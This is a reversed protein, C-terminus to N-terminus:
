APEVLCIEMAFKSSKTPALSLSGPKDKLEGSFGAHAAYGQWPEICLFGAGPKTWIGLHPMEAFKVQISPKGPVGFTVARSKLQDFILAGPVFMEDELHMKIGKFFEETSNLDLLGDITRRPPAAETREFRLIHEERRGGYPLPWRFAPHFGFSVPMPWPSRNIVTAAVRLVSNEIAFGVELVFDFPFQVRTAADAELRFCCESNAFHVLTFDKTRAFGHQRMAYIKGDILAQDNPLRGIIPFLLPARGAWWKACGDWLLDRGRRDRLRILEAGHSCIEAQLDDSRIVAAAAVVGANM